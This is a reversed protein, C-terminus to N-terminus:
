AARKNDRLVEEALELAVDALYDYSDSEIGWLSATYGTGDGDRDLLEVVVGVYCWQDDCWQRLRDFDAMAAQAAYQRRTMTARHMAYLASAAANRDRGYATLDSRGAVYARFKRAGSHAFRDVVMRGPLYGWGDKRAIRCAEAFDYYRRWGHRDSHLEIEGPAKARRAWDSVPGHGDEEDWPAGHAQDPEITVAFTHRGVTITDRM